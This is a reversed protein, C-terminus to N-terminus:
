HTQHPHSQSYALRAASVLDLHELVLLALFVRNSTNAGGGVEGRMFKLRCPLADVDLADM